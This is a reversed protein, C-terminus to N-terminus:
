DNLPYRAIPEYVAGGNGLHSEYLLFQDLTFPVTALMANDALFSDVPGAAGSLRALTIHPLYTRAEPELGARVMALDIKRHLATVADRPTVGAWVARPRGNEDFAGVGAVALAVPPSRVGALAAAVDEAVPRAVKGVYRVTIHLQNDNQWNAGAIGGMEAMLADRIMPPPRLAVFLRHM